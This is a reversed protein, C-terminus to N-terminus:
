KLPAGAPVTIALDKLTGEQGEFRVRVQGGEGPLLHLSLLQAGQNVFGIKGPSATFSRDDSGVRAYGELRLAAPDYTASVSVPGPSELDFVLDWGSQGPELAVTGSLGPAAVRVVRAPGSAAPGDSGITGMLQNGDLSQRGIDTLSLGFAVALTTAALAVGRGLWRRRSVARPSLPLPNTPQPQWRQRLGAPPEMPVLRALSHAMRHLQDRQLRAPADAALRKALEVRGAEDLEDDLEGHILELTLPDIDTM